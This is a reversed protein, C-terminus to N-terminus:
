SDKELRNLVDDPGGNPKLRQEDVIKGDELRVIRDARAADRPDHTVIVVTQGHTDCLERLLTLVHDGTRRDLNGTPEDALVVAPETVLARAIAVRQQEGGSLEGPRHDARHAVQVRDMAALAREDARREALGDILLPLATNERATLVQVLNFAQFVFGIRRRRLVTLRDDDLAALDAEEVAVRGRTPADLGGMLHLLTSKGSGSPGMIAVFEGSPIALDVGALAAVRTAGEGFSKELGEVEVATTM